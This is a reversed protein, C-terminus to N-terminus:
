IAVSSNSILPLTEVPHLAAEVGLLTAYCRVGLPRREKVSSTVVDGSSKGGVGQREVQWMKHRQPIKQRSNFNLLFKRVRAHVNPTKM